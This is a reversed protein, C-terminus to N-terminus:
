SLLGGAMNYPYNGGIYPYALTGYTDSEYPTENVKGREPYRGRTLNDWDLQNFMNPDLRGIGTNNKKMKDLKAELPQNNNKSEPTVPSPTDFLNGSVNHTGTDEAAPFDILNDVGAHENIYYPSTLQEVYHDLGDEPRYTTDFGTFPETLKNKTLNLPNGDDDYEEVTPLSEDVLPLSNRHRYYSQANKSFDIDANLRANELLSEVTHYKKPIREEKRFSDSGHEKQEKIFQEKNRIKKKLDLKQKEDFSLLYPESDKEIDDHFAELISEMSREFGFLGPRNTRSMIQDLSLDSSFDNIGNGNSNGPGGRFLPSGGPSFSSNQGGVGGFNAIKKNM